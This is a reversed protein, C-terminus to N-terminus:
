IMKIFDRILNIHIQTSILLKALQANLHFSLNLKNKPNIKITYNQLILKM